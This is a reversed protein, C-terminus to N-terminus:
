SGKALALAACPLVAAKAVLDAVVGIDLPTSQWAGSAAYGRAEAYAFDVTGAPTVTLGLVFFARAATEQGAPPAPCAAALRPVAYEATLRVDTAGGPGDFSEWTTAAIGPSLALLQSLTRGGPGDPRWNRAETEARPAFCGALTAAMALALWLMRGPM